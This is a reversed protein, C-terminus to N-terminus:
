APEVGMGSTRTGERGWLRTCGADQDPGWQGQLVAKHPVGRREPALRLVGFFAVDDGEAAADVVYPDSGKGTRGREGERVRVSVREPATWWSRCPGLPSPWEAPRSEGVRM